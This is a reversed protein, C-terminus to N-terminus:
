LGYREACHFQHYNFAIKYKKVKILLIEQLVLNINRIM